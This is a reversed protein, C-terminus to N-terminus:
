KVKSRAAAGRARLERDTRYLVGITTDLRPFAALAQAGTSGIGNSRLDLAALRQSRGARGLAAAMAKAGEDKILNDALGLTVLSSGAAFSALAEAGQPGLENSEAYLSALKCRGNAGLAAALAAAGEDKIRNTGVDLSTLSPAARLFAALEAAGDIGLENHSLDLEALRVFRPLAENLERMEAAGWGCRSFELSTWRAATAEFFARYLDGVLAADGPEAFVKGKILAAAREPTLLPRRSAVCARQLQDAEEWGEGGYAKRMCDFTRKSLDIGHEDMALAGGLAAEFWCWGSEGYPAGSFGDPLEPLMWVVSCAHGFWVASARLGARFLREEEPSRPLQHLSGFDWFVAFDVREEALGANQFALALPSKQAAAKSYYGGRGLYLSAVAAVIQLHFADPDPHQESLWRCSIAVCALGFDEGLAKSCRSFESPSWFAESPLEQRRQIRGSGGRQHLNVLWSGRLPAIAGCAVSDLLATSHSYADVGAKQLRSLAQAKGMNELCNRADGCCSSGRQAAPELARARAVQKLTHEESVDADLQQFLDPRERAVLPRAMLVVPARARKRSKESRSRAWLLKADLDPSRKM